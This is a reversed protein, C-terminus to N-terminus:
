KPKPEPPPPPPPEEYTAIAILLVLSLALATVLALTRGPHRQVEQMRVDALAFRTLTGQGLRQVGAAGRDASVAIMTISDANVTLMRGHLEIVHDLALTDGSTSRFTLAHPAVFRVSLETRPTIEASTVGRHSVCGTLAMLAVLVLPAATNRSM